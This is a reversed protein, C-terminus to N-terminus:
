ESKLAQLLRGDRIDRLLRMIVAAILLGTVGLAVLLPILASGSPTNLLRVLAISLLGLAAGSALRLPWRRGFLTSSILSVGSEGLARRTALTRLNLGIAAQGLLSASIFGALAAISMLIANLMAVEREQAMQVALVTEVTNPAQLVIEPFFREALPQLLSLRAQAGDSPLVAAAMYRRERLPVYLMPALGARADAVHANEVIGCIRLVAGDRTRIRASTHKDSLGWADLFRRNVWVSDAGQTDFAGCLPKTNAGIVSFYNASVHNVPLQARREEGAVEILADLVVLPLGIPGASALAIDLPQVAEAFAYTDSSDFMWSRARSDFAVISTARTTAPVDISLLHTLRQVGATGFAWAFLVSCVLATFLASVLISRQREQAPGTFRFSLMLAPHLLLLAIATAAIVTLASPSTLFRNLARDLPLAQSVQLLTFLTALAFLVVTILSTLGRRLHRMFWRLEHEGLMRRIRDSQREREARMLAFAIVCVCLTLGMAQLGLMLSQSIQSFRARREPHYGAGPALHVQPSLGGLDTLARSIRTRATALDGTNAALANVVFYRRVDEIQQPPFLVNSWGNIGMWFDAPREVDIGLFAPSAIGVILFDEWMPDVQLRWQMNAIRLTRDLALEPKGYLRTALAQSIIVERTPTERIPLQTATRSLARGNLHIGLQEFLPGFVLDYRLEVHGGGVEVIVNRSISGMLSLDPMQADLREVQGISLQNTRDALGM